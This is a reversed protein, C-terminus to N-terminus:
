RPWVCPWRRKSRLWGQAQCHWHGVPIFTRRVEAPALQWRHNLRARVRCAQNAILKSAPRRQWRALYRSQDRGHSPKPRMGRPSSTPVQLPSYFRPNHTRIYDLELRDNAGGATAVVFSKADQVRFCSPILTLTLSYRRQTTSGVSTRIPTIRDFQRSSSTCKPSTPSLSKPCMSMVRNRCVWGGVCGCVCVCM